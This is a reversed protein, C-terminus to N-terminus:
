MVRCNQKKKGSQNGNQAVPRFVGSKPSVFQLKSLLEPDETDPVDPDLIKPLNSRNNSSSASSSATSAKSGTSGQSGTSTHSKLSEFCLKGNSAPNAGQRVVVGNKPEMPSVTSTSSAPSKLDYSSASGLPSKPTAVPICETPTKGQSRFSTRRSLGNPRVQASAVAPVAQTIDVVVVSTSASSSRPSKGNRQQHQQQQQVEATAVAEMFENRAAAKQLCGLSTRHHQPKKNRQQQDRLLRPSLPPPPPGGFATAPFVDDDELITSHQVSANDLIVNNNESGSFSNNCPHHRRSNGNGASAASSASAASHISKQSGGFMGSMKGFSSNSPCRRAMIPKDGGGYKIAALACVEFAEHVEIDAKASTEVYNVAEIECCIALAQEHSVPTRGTKSLQATTTPDGRLDSHTGCM